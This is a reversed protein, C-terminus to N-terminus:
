VGGGELVLGQTTTVLSRLKPLAASGSGSLKFLRVRRDGQEDERAEVWGAEKLRTMTTYLTGYSIPKGNEKEYRLALDRGNVERLGLAFLLNM